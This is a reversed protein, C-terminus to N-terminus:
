KTGALVPSQEPTRSKAESPKLTVLIAFSVVIYFMVTIATIWWGSYAPSPTFSEATFDPVLNYTHFYKRLLSRISGMLSMTWIMSFALFILEFQSAFDIKGWV